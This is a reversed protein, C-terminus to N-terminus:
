EDVDPARAVEDACQGAPVLEIRPGAEARNVALATWTRSGGRETLLGACGRARFGCGRSVFTVRPVRRIRWRRTRMAYTRYDPAATMRVAHARQRRRDGARGAVDDMGTM